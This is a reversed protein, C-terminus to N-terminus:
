ILNNLNTKIRNSILNLEDQLDGTDFLVFTDYKLSIETEYNKFSISLEKPFKEGDTTFETGSKRMVVNQNEENHIFYGYRIFFTICKEKDLSEKFIIKKANM